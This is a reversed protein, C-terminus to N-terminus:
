TIWDRLLLSQGYLVTYYYDLLPLGLLSLLDSSAITNDDSCTCLKIKYNTSHNNHVSRVHADDWNELPYFGRYNKKEGRRKKITCHFITMHASRSPRKVKNLLSPAARTDRRRGCGRVLARRAKNATPTLSSIIIIMTLWKLLLLLLILHVHMTSRLTLCPIIWNFINMSYSCWALTCDLVVQEKEREEEM